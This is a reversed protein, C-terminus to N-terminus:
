EVFRLTGFATFDHNSPRLLTSWRQLEFTPVWRSRTFNARWISGIKVPPAGEFDAFPVFVELSWVGEDRAAAAKTGTSNWAAGGTGGDYITGLSNAVIQYFKRREGSVDLFMEICDDAYVDQDHELRSARISAVDPELLKFGFTVGQDTWVAQVTTAKAAEPPLGTFAMKLPQPQAQRWCEDELLGDLKPPGGVKMVPLVPLNAGGEHYSDSEKLFAEIARGTFDVRRRYVTGEPAMGRAGILLDRLRAAQAKPMTEEHVQRPSIHHGTPQDQWRTQEWRDILLNLMTGMPRAAPGYMLQVYEELAADVNFNPNWMLRLWCYLTPTQSMWLGERGLEPPYYGTNFFSGAIESGHRRQFDQIVHPYQFPLATDDVPWCVYEWLRIPRGGTLKVWGAIMEDHQAAVAPEKANAAGRMLCLSVVVNDPFVVGEPPLTYNAYPLFAVYKDPWRKKVEAAFAAVHQAVLKSAVGLPPAQRDMLKNCYECHCDVQADLPSVYIARDTPPFWLGGGHQWPRTDGENYFREVDQIMLEVTKPNGYCPMESRHQGDSDVQFCEPHDQFHVAYFHLPTHCHVIVATKGNPRYQPPAETLQRNARVPADTYHVPAVTLDVSPPIVRGDEGPYYWRIGLYRELFDYVGWLTANPGLNYDSEQPSRGVIALGGPFTRVRFGEPPLDAATIQRARTLDSEGVLIVTGAPPTADSVLPLHAGTALKVYTQLESAARFDVSAHERFAAQSVVITAVPAGAQVLTVPPGSPATLVRVPNLTASNTPAAAVGGVAGVVLLLLLLGLTRM